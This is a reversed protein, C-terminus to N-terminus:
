PTRLTQRWNRRSPILTARQVTARSIRWIPRFPAIRPLATRVVILSRAAGHGASRTLRWNWAGRGFAKHTASKV